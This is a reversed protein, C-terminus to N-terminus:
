NKMSKLLEKLLYPYLKTNFDKDKSEVLEEKDEYCLMTKSHLIDVILYYTKEQYTTKSVVVYEQEDGLTIVDQIDINM